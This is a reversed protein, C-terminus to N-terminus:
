TTQQNFITVRLLVIERQPLQQTVIRMMRKVVLVEPTKQLLQGLLMRERGQSVIQLHEDGFALRRPTKPDLMQSSADILQRVDGAAIRQRLRSELQSQGILVVIALFLRPDSELLHFEMM